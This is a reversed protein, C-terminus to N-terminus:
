FMQRWVLKQEVSNLLPTFTTVNVLLMAMNGDFMDYVFASLLGFFAIVIAKFNGM